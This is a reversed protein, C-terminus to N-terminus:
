FNKKARFFILSGIVAVLLLFGLIYLSFNFHYFNNWSNHFLPRNQAFEALTISSNTIPTKTSDAIAVPAWVIVFFSILVIFFAEGWTKMICLYM